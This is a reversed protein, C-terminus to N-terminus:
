SRAPFAVVLILCAFATVVRQVVCGFFGAFIAPLFFPTVLYASRLAFSCAALSRMGEMGVVQAAAFNHKKLYTEQAIM